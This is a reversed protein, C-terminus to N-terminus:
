VVFDESDNTGFEVRIRNPLCILPKGTSVGERSCINNPSKEEIIEVSGRREGTAFTYQIVVIQRIGGVTYDGLLTVTQNDLDIIPFSGYGEPVVQNYHKTVEFNVFDITVIPDSSSGYYINAVQQDAQFVFLQFAFYVGGVLLFLVVLLLADRKNKSTNRIETM